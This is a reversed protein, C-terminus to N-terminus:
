LRFIKRLREVEELFESDNYGKKGNPLVTTKTKDSGTSDNLDIKSVKKKNMQKKNNMSKSSTSSDGKANVPNSSDNTSRSLLTQPMKFTLLDKGDSCLLALSADSACFSICRSMGEGGVMSGLASDSVIEGGNGSHGDSPSLRQCISPTNTNLMLNFILTAGTDLVAAFVHSLHRSWQIDRIISAAVYRMLM